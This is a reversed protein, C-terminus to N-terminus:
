KAPASPSGTSNTGGSNQHLLGAATAEKVIQAAYPDKNSTQVLDKILAIYKGQVKEAEGITPLASQYESDYVNRQKNAAFDQYGTWMLLGFLLVALPWFSSYRVQDYDDPM